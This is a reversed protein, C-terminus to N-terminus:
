SSCNACAAALKAYGHIDYTKKNTKNLFMCHNRNFYVRKLGCSWKTTFSTGDIVRNSVFM